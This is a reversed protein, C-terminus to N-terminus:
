AALLRRLAAVIEPDAPRPRVIRAADSAFRRGSMGQAEPPRWAWLRLPKKVSSPWVVIIPVQVKAQPGLFRQVAQSAWAMTRKGAHPAAHLGRYHKQGFSWYFGPKWVKSDIIFVKHGSVVVHDIDVHAKPDPLRLSHLVVVEPHRAAFKALVDATGLEGARGVAQRGADLGSWGQELTKGATGYTTM